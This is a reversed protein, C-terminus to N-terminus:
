RWLVRLTAGAIVAAPVQVLLLAQLLRLGPVLAQGPGLGSGRGQVRRLVQVQVQARAPEAALPRQRPHVLAEMLVARPAHWHRHSQWLVRRQGHVSGPFDQWVEEPPLVLVKQEQPLRLAQERAAARLSQGVAM